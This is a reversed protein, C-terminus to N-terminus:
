DVLTDYIASYLESAKLEWSKYINQATKKDPVVFKLELMPQVPALIKLFVTYTGDKYTAAQAGACLLAASAAVILQKIM